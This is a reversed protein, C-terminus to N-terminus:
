KLHKEAVEKLSEPEKEEKDKITESAKKLIDETSKINNIDDLGMTVEEGEKAVFNDIWAFVEMIFDRKNRSLFSKKAIIERVHFDILEWSIVEQYEEDTFDIRCVTNTNDPITSEDTVLDYEGEMLEVWKARTLTSQAIDLLWRRQSRYNYNRHLSLVNNRPVKKDWLLDYNIMKLFYMFALTHNEFRKPKPAITQKAELDIKHNKLPHNNSFTYVEEKLTEEQIVPPTVVPGVGVTAVKKNAQRKTKKVEKEEM